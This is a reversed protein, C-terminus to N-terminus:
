LNFMGAFICWSHSVSLLWGAFTFFGTLTIVELAVTVYPLYIVRTQMALCIQEVSRAMAHRELLYGLNPLRIGRYGQGDFGSKRKVATGVATCSRDVARTRLIYETNHASYNIRPLATLGLPAAYTALSSSRYLQM